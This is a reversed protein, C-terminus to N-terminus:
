PDDEGQIKSRILKNRALIKKAGMSKRAKKLIM